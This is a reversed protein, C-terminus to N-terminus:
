ALPSCYTDLTGQINGSHKGSHERFTSQINGSHQEDGDGPVEKGGGALTLGVPFPLHGINRLHERITGQINGSHEMLTGKIYRSHERFTGQINNMVMAQFM